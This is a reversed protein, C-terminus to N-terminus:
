QETLDSISMKMESNKIADNLAEEITNVRENSSRTPIKNNYTYYYMQYSFKNDEHRFIEIIHYDTDSEIKITNYTKVLESKPEVQKQINNSNEESTYNQNYNDNQNNNNNDNEDTINVNPYQGKKIAEYESQSVGNIDSPTHDYDATKEYTNNKKIYSYTIGVWSIDSLLKDLSIYAYQSTTKDWTKQGQIEYIYLFEPYKEKNEKPQIRSIRLVKFYKDYSSYDRNNFDESYDILTYPELDFLSITDSIIDTSVNDSITNNVVPTDSSNEKNIFPIALFVLEGVIIIIMITYIVKRKVSM